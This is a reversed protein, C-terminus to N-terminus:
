VLTGTPNNPQRYLHRPDAAHDGPLIAELDFRHERDAVEVARAGFLSAVLRYAIFANESTVMETAQDFFLTGSLNSSRM